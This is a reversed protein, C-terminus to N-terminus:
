DGGRVLQISKGYIASLLSALLMIMQLPHLLVNLLPNQGSLFSIMIRTLFILGVPLILLSYEYNSLMLLPGAVVLLVYFMAAFINNGFKRFLLQGTKKFSETTHLPVVTNILRNGLLIEAKFGEQKVGKVVELAEPLRDEFRQEWQHKRCLAADFFMCQNSGASFIPSPFLRILRLPTLNLLVFNNLPVLCNNMFGAFLQTPVVTLLALNFIKTRYILSNILGKNVETNVGLFLLYNGTAEEAPNIIGARKERLQFRRDIACVSVIAAHFEQAKAQEIIVEIHQYDQQKLTTILNLLGSNDATADIIISVKDTFHKGYNGLKPNSLFNFVTVSFRLILFILIIYVFILNLM